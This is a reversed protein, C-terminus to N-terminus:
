AGEQDYYMLYASAGSPLRFRLSGNSNTPDTGTNDYIIKGSAPTMGAGLEFLYGNTDFTAKGTGSSNMYLFSTATGTSDGSVLVIESELPAYTGQTTGASLELEACFASALGTVRGSDGFVVHAKLANAWGGLAVNATMHFRARGGVGAAGTMVHKVYFSEASTSASTSACTTYMDFIPTGATLVLPTGTVGIEISALGVFELANDSADWLIYSGSTDGFITMDSGAVSKAFRLAEIGDVMVALRSNVSDYNWGRKMAATNRGM